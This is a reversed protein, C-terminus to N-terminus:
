EDPEGLGFAAARAERLLAELQGVDVPKIPVHSFGADLCEQKAKDTTYGTRAVLMCKPPLKASRLQKATAPGSQRPMAYDILVLHPQFKEALSVCQTPENCQEVECDLRKLIHGFVITDDPLDDVLLVRLKQRPRM